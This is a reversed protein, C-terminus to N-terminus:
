RARLQQCPVLAPAWGHRPSSEQSGAPHGAECSPASALSQDRVSPLEPWPHLVRLSVNLTSREAAHSISSTVFTCVSPSTVLSESSGTGRRERSRQRGAMDGLEQTGEEQGGWWCAGLKASRTESTVRGNRGQSDRAAEKGQHPGPNRVQILTVAKM